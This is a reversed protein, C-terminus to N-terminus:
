ASRNKNIWNITITLCVSSCLVILYSVIWHKLLPITRIFRDGWSIVKLVFAHCFYLTYSNKSVWEITNKIRGLQIGKTAKFLLVSILMGYLTYFMRPPYKYNNPFPFSHVRSAITIGCLLFLCLGFVRGWNDKQNKDKERIGLLFVCSYALGSM